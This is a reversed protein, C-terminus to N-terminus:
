DHYIYVEPNDLPSNRGKRAKKKPPENDDREILKNREIRIIRSISSPSVHFIESIERQTMGKNVNRIIEARLQADIRGYPKREKLTINNSQPINTEYTDLVKEIKQVRDLNLKERIM